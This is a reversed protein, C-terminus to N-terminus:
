QIFLKRCAVVALLLIDRSCTADWASGRAVRNNFWPILSGYCFCVVVINFTTFFFNFSSFFFVLVVRSCFVDIPIQQVFIANLIYIYIYWTLLVLRM